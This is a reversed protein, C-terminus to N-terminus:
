RARNVVGTKWYSHYGHNWIRICGAELSLLPPLRGGFGAEYTGELVQSCLAELCVPSPRPKLPLTAYPIHHVGPQEPESSMLPELVSCIVSTLPGRMAEWVKHYSDGPRKVNPESARGAPLALAM